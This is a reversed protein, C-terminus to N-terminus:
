SGMISIVFTRFQNDNWNNKNIVYTNVCNENIKITTDLKFAGTQKRWTISKTPFYPVCKIKSNCGSKKYFEENFNPFITIYIKLPSIDVFIMYEAKWPTEGLEHQFSSSNSGLRATKIEVTKGMIYGDGFGGGIQKTKLGDINSPIKARSCLENTLREGYKGVDDNELKAINKWSSKSWIDRSQKKEYIDSLITIAINVAADNEITTDTNSIDDIVNNFGLYDFADKHNFNYKESLKVVVDSLLRACEIKLSNM